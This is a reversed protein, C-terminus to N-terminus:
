RDALPVFDRAEPGTYAASPRIITGDHRQEIVHAVWGAVRAMVFLPTFMDTPVGLKAYAVASFWDLNPFMRKESAMVQEIREAVQYTRLDGAEQSLELAAISM